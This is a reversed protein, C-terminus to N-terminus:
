ISVEDNEGVRGIKLHEFGTRRRSLGDINEHDDVSRYESVRPAFFAPSPTSPRRDVRGPAWVRPPKARRVRATRVIDFHCRM